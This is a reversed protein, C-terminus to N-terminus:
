GTADRLVRAMRGAVDHDPIEDALAGAERKLLSRDMGDGLTRFVSAADDLDRERTSLVKLLVFDEPSVLTVRQSRLSGALARDLVSQAYRPSRPEVLDLVNLGSTDSAGLLAIRSIDNGGFRVRDFGLSVDMGAQTLAQVVDAASVGAVAFDADKTERPEGYAALALGGYVAARLSAGELARAVTLAATTPDSLDNV